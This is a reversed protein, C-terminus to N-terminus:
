ILLTFSVGRIIMIHFLSKLVEESSIYDIIEQSMNQNTYFFDNIANAAANEIDDKSVFISECSFSLSIGNHTKSISSIRCSPIENSIESAITTISHIDNEFADYFLRKTKIFLDTNIEIM